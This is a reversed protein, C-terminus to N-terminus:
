VLHNWPQRITRCREQLIVLSMKLSPSLPAIEELASITREFLAELNRLTLPTDPPLHKYMNSEFVTALVLMNGFQAQMTGAINTLILRQTRTSKYGSYPSHKPAGVRDFAVTSQIAADICMESLKLLKKQDKNLEAMHVDKGTATTVEGTYAPSNHQGKQHSGQHFPPWECEVALRLCPRLMMYLSEYYKARMRAIHLDTAPLADDSWALIPLVMGRWVNLQKIHYEVHEAVATIDNQDFSNRKGASRTLVKYSIPEQSCKCGYLSDQAEKLIARLYIEGSYIMMVIDNKCPQPYSECVGEPYM